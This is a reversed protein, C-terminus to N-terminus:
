SKMVAWTTIKQLLSPMSRDGPPFLSVMPSSAYDYNPTDCVEKLKYRLPFDFAAIQDDTVLRVQDLWRYLDEISVHQPRREHIRRAIIGVIPLHELM